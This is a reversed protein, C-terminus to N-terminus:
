KILSVINDLIKSKNWIGYGNKLVDRIMDIIENGDEIHTLKKILEDCQETLRKNNESLYNNKYTLTKHEKLM